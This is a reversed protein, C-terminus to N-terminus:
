RRKHYKEIYEDAKELRKELKEIQQPYKQKLVKKFTEFHPPVYFGIIDSIANQLPKLSWNEKTEKRKLMLYFAIPTIWRDIINVFESAIKIQEDESLLDLPPPFVKLKNKSLNILELIIENYTIAEFQIRRVYGKEKAKDTIKYVVRDNIVNRILDGKKKLETLHKSLIPKSLGTKEVLEKFTKPSDILSSIIKEQSRKKIDKQAWYLM